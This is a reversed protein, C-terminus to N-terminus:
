VKKRILLGGQRVHQIESSNLGKLSLPMYWEYEAKLEQDVQYMSSRAMETCNHKGDDDKQRCRLMFPTVGEDVDVTVTKHGKPCTYVNKKGQYSMDISKGEIIILEAGEVKDPSALLFNM